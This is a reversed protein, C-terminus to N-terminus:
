LACVIGSLTQVDSGEKVFYSIEESTSWWITAIEEADHKKYCGRAKYPFCSRDFVYIAGDYLVCVLDSGKHKPLAVLSTEPVYIARRTGM